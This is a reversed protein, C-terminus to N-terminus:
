SFSSTIKNLEELSEIKKNSENLLTTLANVKNTLSCEPYNEYIYKDVLLINLGLTLAESWSINNEQADKHLIYPISTTINIRPSKFGKQNINSNEEM